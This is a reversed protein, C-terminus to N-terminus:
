RALSTNDNVQRLCLLAGDILDLAELAQEAQIARSETLAQAMHRPDVLRQIEPALSDAAPVQPARDTWYRLKSQAQCAQVQAELARRAGLLVRENLPENHVMRRLLRADGEQGGDPASIHISVLVQEILRREHPEDFTVTAQIRM